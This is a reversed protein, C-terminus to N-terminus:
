YCREEKGLSEDRVRIKEIIDKDTIYFIGYQYDFYIWIALNDYDARNAEVDNWYLDLYMESPILPNQYDSLYDNYREWVYEWLDAYDKISKPLVGIMGVRDDRLDFDELRYTNGFDDTLHYMKVEEVFAEMKETFNEFYKMQELLETSM